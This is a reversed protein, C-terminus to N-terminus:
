DGFFVHTKQWDINSAYPESALLEYLARPTSGGALASSFYGRTAVSDRSLKVIQSAASEILEQPSEKVVVLTNM